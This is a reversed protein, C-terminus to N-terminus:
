SVLLMGEQLPYDKEPTRIFVKTMVLYRAHGEGEHQGEWQVPGRPAYVKIGQTPPVGLLVKFDRAFNQTVSNDQAQVGVSCNLLHIAEFREATLGFGRLKSAFDSPSLGSLTTPSGHGCVILKEKAPKLFSGLISTSPVVALSSVGLQNIAQPMAMENYVGQVLKLWSGMVVVDAQGFYIIM